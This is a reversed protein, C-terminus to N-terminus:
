GKKERKPSMGGKGEGNDLVKPQGREGQLSPHGAWCTGSAMSLRATPTVPRWVGAQALPLFFCKGSRGLSENSGVAGWVQWM